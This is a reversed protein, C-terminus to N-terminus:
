EQIESPNGEKKKKKLKTLDYIAEKDDPNTRYITGAKALAYVAKRATEAGCADSNTKITKMTSPGHSALFGLVYKEGTKEKHNFNSKTPVLTFITQKLGEDKNWSAQASFSTPPIFRTKGSVFTIVNSKTSTIKIELDVAGSIASSGRPGASATKGSHHIILVSIGRTDALKRLATFIPQTDQKSNEDGEMLMALVDFIVFKASTHEILQTIESVDEKKDLKYGTLSIYQIPTTKDVNLGRAIEEIRDATHREGNDEDIVLVSSQITKHGLWPKGSAVCIGLHLASYTKKSGGAGYFMTLSGAQIMDEVLWILPSRPEFCYALNRLIYRPTKPKMSAALEGWENTHLTWGDLPINYEPNSAFYAALVEEMLDTKPTPTDAPKKILNNKNTTM